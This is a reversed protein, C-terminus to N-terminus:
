IRLFNHCCVLKAYGQNSGKKLIHDHECYTAAAGGSIQYAGLLPLREKKPGDCLSEFGVPHPASSVRLTKWRLVRPGYASALAPPTLRVRVDRM